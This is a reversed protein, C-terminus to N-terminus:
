TVPPIAQRAQIVRLQDITQRDHPRDTAQKARILADITLIRCSGGWLRLELSQQKVQEFDGLGLVTSLCDLTGLDTSLYLNQLRRFLGEEFEFPLRQPTIRHVPHLDALIGHLRVLNDFEFSCCIDADRTTLTVGHVVAALGGILVFEFRHEILRRIILDPEPM